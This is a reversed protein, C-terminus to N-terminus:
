PTRATRTPKIRVVTITGSQSALWLDDGVQTIGAVGFEPLPTQSREEGTAADIADLRDGEGETTVHTWLTDGVAFPASGAGNGPLTDWVIRGRDGPDALAIRGEGDIWVPGRPSLGFGRADPLRVPMVGTLRGTELDYREFRGDRRLALLGDRTVALGRPFPDDDREQIPVYGTIRKGSPDLRLAGTAGTIWPTGDVIQVDGAAFPRGDPTLLRTRATVRATAPDIRLVEGPADIQAAFGVVWVAGAGTNVVPDPLADIRATVRHSEPDVRLIRDSSPDTAWVSGYAASITGLNDAVPFSAVVAPATITQERQWDIGGLLVVAILLAAAVAATALVAPRPLTLRARGLVGRREERLAAARLELRLRTTFDQSM